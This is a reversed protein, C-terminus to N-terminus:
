AEAPDSALERLDDTDYYLTGYSGAHRLEWSYGPPLKAQLRSTVSYWSPGIDTDAKLGHQFVPFGRNIGTFIQVPHWYSHSAPIGVAALHRLVIHRPLPEGDDDEGNVFVREPYLLPVAGPDPCGNRLAVYYDLRDIRCGAWREWLEKDPDDEDQPRVYGYGSSPRRMTDPVGPVILGDDLGASLKHRGDQTVGAKLVRGGSFDSMHTVYGWLAQSITLTETM